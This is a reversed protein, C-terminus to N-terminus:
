PALWVPRNGPTVVEKVAGTQIDLRWIGPAKGLEAMSYRRFLLQTGDPSWAPTGYILGPESTLPRAQAGDAGMLWLQNGTAAGAQSMERRVVVIWTGDPSWAAATDMVADELAARESLDLLAEKAVEFRFLHSLEPGDARNVRNTLLLYEGGPSWDALTGGLNPLSYRRGDELNYIEMEGSGPYIYSLWRGDPSWRANFGPWRHDQFVPETEHATLDLVWLSPLGAPADPTPQSLSEYILRQGDPSWVPQDCILGPCPLLAPPGAGDLQLLSLSTQGGEGAATYAVTVGDPSLAYNLVGIPERTLAVPQGSSGEIRFLQPREQEDPAVYLIGAQDAQFPAPSVEAPAPEVQGAPESTPVAPGASAVVPEPGTGSFTGALASATLWIGLGLVVVASVLPLLPALRSFSDMKEFLRRSHVMVLGIVILVLALGLSFAVILSLGLALRNIALAVLLIAIADPCPVLGGSVGLALLSRWTVRDPLHHHHHSHDHDHHHHDDHSHPHPHDHGHHHHHDHRGASPDDRWAQWRRYLLHAGFGVILLGSALELLPLLRDPLIYRSAFLTVLGLLFVSGTHTLTVIAGLNVAHWATGRAGVLYAAVVTKGHGPTLAHLAGLVVAIVLAVLYFGTSLEPARVLRTLIADPRSDQPQLAEGAGIVTDPALQSVLPPLSPIGSDWSTQREQGPISAAQSLDVAEPIFFEIELRGNDQEPTEFSVGEIGRLYFWNISIAEQYGNHLSLRHSGALNAPLDAALDVTITEEGALLSEMSAPWQVSEFRWALATAGDLIASFEPVQPELWARAEAPTIIQDQDSDVAQWVLSALMGGPYIAWTTRIHAPSLTITHEQFFMDAPHARVSQGTGALWALVAILALLKIPRRSM